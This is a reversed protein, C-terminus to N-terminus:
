FIARELCLSGNHYHRLGSPLVQAAEPTLGSVNAWLFSLWSNRKAAAMEGLHWDVSDILSIKGKVSLILSANRFFVAM